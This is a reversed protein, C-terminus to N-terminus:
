DKSLRVASAQLRRPDRPDASAIFEVRQGERLQDFQSGVLASRHFFIQQRREEPTIFGFGQLLRLSSIVGRVLPPSGSFTTGAIASATVDSAM